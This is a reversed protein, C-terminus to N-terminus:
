GGNVRTWVNAVTVSDTWVSGKADLDSEARSRIERSAIYMGVTFSATMGRNAWCGGGM